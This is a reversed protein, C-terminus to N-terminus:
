PKPILTRPGQDHATPEQMTPRLTAPHHLLVNMNCLTRMDEHLDSEIIADLGGHVRYFVNGHASIADPDMFVNHAAILRDRVNGEGNLVQELAVRAPSDPILRPVANEIQAIVDESNEFNYTILCLLSHAIDATIQLRKDIITYYLWNQRAFAVRQWASARLMEFVHRQPHSLPM